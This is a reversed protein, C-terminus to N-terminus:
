NTIGYNKKTRNIHEKFKVCCILMIKCLDWITKKEDTTIKDINKKILQAFIMASKEQKFDQELFFKEDSDKIYQMYQIIKLYSESILLYPSNDSAARCLRKLRELEALEEDNKTYKPINEVLLSLLQKVCRNFNFMCTYAINDEDGIGISLIDIGCIIHKSDSM